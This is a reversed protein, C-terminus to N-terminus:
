VEITAPVSVAILVLVPLIVIQFVLVKCLTVSLPLLVVLAISNALVVFETEVSEPARCTAPPTPIPPLRYTPPWTTVDAIVAVVFKTIPVVPATSIRLLPCRVLKEELPLISSPPLM